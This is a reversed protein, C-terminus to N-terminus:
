LKDIVIELKTGYRHVFDELVKRIIENRNIKKGLKYGLGLALREYNSLCDGSLSMLFVEKRDRYFESRITKNFELWITEETKAMEWDNDSLPNGDEPLGKGTNGPTNPIEQFPRPKPALGREEKLRDLISDTQQVDMTIAKILESTDKRKKM